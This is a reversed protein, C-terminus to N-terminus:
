IEIGHSWFSVGVGRGLLPQRRMGGAGQLVQECHHPVRAARVCCVLAGRSHQSHIVRTYAAPTQSTCDSTLHMQFHFSTLERPSMVRAYQFSTLERPSM